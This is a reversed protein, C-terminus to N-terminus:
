KRKSIEGFVKEVSRGGFYFIVITQMISKHIETLEMAPLGLPKAIVTFVFLLLTVLSWIPRHIAALTTTLANGRELEKEALLRASERDRVEAEFKSLDLKSLGERLALEMKLQEEESMKERPLVRNVVEKVLGTVPATIFDLLGM